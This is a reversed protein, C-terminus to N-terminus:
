TGGGDRRPAYGEKKQENSPMPSTVTAAAEALSTKSRAPFVFAVLHDVVSGAQQAARSAHRIVEGGDGQHCQACAEWGSQGGHAAWLLMFTVWKGCEAVHLMSASM